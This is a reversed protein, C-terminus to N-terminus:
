QGLSRRPGVRSVPRSPQCGGRSRALDYRHSRFCRRGEPASNARMASLSPTRPRRLRSRASLQRRWTANRRPGFLCRPRSRCRKHASRRSCFPWTRRRRTTRPRPIPSPPLGSTEGAAAPPNADLQRLHTAEVEESAPSHFTTFNRPPAYSSRGGRNGQAYMRALPPGEFGGAQPLLKSTASPRSAASWM